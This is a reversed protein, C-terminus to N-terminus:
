NKIIKNTFKKANEDTTQVLYIGSELSSVDIRKEPNFGADNWNERYVTKGTLSIVEITVQANANTTPFNINLVDNCPNPYVSTSANAM